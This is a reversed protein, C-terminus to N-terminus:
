PAQLIMWGRKLASGVTCILFDAPAHKDNINCEHLYFKCFQSIYWDHVALAPSKQALMAGWQILQLGKQTQALTTSYLVASSVPLHM